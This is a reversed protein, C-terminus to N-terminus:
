QIRSILSAGKRLFYFLRAFYFRRVVYRQGGFIIDRRLGSGLGESLMVLRGFDLSAM